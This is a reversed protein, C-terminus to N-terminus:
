NIMVHDIISLDLDPLMYFLKFNKVLKELKPCKDDSQLKFYSFVIVAKNSFINLSLRKFTACSVGPKRKFTSVKETRGSIM